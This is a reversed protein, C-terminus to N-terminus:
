EDITEEKILKPNAVMLNMQVFPKIHVTAWARLMTRMADAHQGERGVLVNYDRESKTIIVFAMGKAPDLHEDRIVEIGWKTLPSALLVLYKMANEHM